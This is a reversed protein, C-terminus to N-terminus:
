ELGIQWLWPSSMLTHVLIDALVIVVYGIELRYKKWNFKGLILIPIVVLSAYLAVEGAHPLQFYNFAHVALLVLTIGFLVFQKRGSYGGFIFYLLMGLLVLMYLPIGFQWALMPSMVTMLIVSAMLLVAYDLVRLSKWTVKSVGFLASLIM